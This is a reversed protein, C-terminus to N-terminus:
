NTKKTSLTFTGREVEIPPGDQIRSFIRVGLGPFRKEDVEIVSTEEKLEQIRDEVYIKESLVTVWAKGKLLNIVFERNKAEFMTDKEVMFCSGTELLMSVRGDILLSALAETEACYVKQVGLLRPYIAYGKLEIFPKIDSNGEENMLIGGWEVVTFGKRKPTKIKPKAIREEKKIGEFVLIVRIMKDPNPKIRIALNDNLFKESLVKIKFYPYGKLEKLWYDKFDKIEKEKLGLKSLTKDFWQNLEETKVVWGEKPLDLSSNLAVEYFLYEYKNDIIGKPSARVLWIGNYYPITKTLWGKPKLYIEIQRTKTPYLYLAPKKVVPLPHKKEAEECTLLKMEKNEDRVLTFCLTEQKTPCCSPENEKHTLLSLYISDRERDRFSVFGPQFILDKIIVRDGLEISNTQIIKGNENVLATIELFSGSGGFNESLIVIAFTPLLKPEFIGYEEIRVSFYNKMDEENGPRLPTKYEGNKLTVTQKSYKLHYAFNNVIEENLTNYNESAIALSVIFLFIFPTLLNAIKV